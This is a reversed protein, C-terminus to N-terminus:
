LKIEVKRLKLSDISYLFRHPYSGKFKEELSTIAVGTEDVEFVRCIVTSSFKVSMEYDLVMDGVKLSKMEQVTM